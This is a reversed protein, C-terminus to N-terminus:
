SDGHIEASPHAGTYRATPEADDGSTAPEYAPGDAARTEDDDVTDDDAEDEGVDPARRVRLVIWLLMGGLVVVIGGILALRDLYSRRVPVVAKAIVVSGAMVQVTLRGYLASQMDIPIQVYTDSPPLKTSVANKGVVQIGGSTKSLVVVTMTKKSTNQITVPIEGSAGALTVAPASVKIAGFVSTSTKIAAKAYVMGADALRWKASPESWESAEALLSDSQASTAQADSSSFVTIMGAAHARASRVTSWFDKPAGKTVAPAFTVTRAGKGVRAESGLELSAWPTGELTALAYGVTSTADTVSDDLDIRVVVPQGGSSSGSREFTRALTASADGSELGRSARADIVLATLSADTTPYAGTPVGARKGVRVSDAEAFTYTVRRTEMLHQMTSPVCGGAPATGGSPTTELSAFIASIGADYQTAGDSALKNASLDALNPDSYGMTLLELRGTGLAQQLHVLTGAYAVPTPDSTAVVSGSAETYGGAAFRKWEEITVPPIALTVRALPDASVLSAIKDVQDRALTGVTSSPDVSFTGGPDVTPRSHVKVLLVVPVRPKSADYIIMPQTVDTSVSSGNVIAQVSFTVPYSGADLGLGELPRAFAFTRTGEKASNLYQTKQYVLRGGPRHVQLRAQVSSAASPFRILGSFGMTGGLPVATASQVLSIGLSDSDQQTAAAAGHALLALLVLGCAAAAFRVASGLRARYAPTM